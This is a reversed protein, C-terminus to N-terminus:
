ANGETTPSLKLKEIEELDAATPEHFEGTVWQERPISPDGIAIEVTGALEQGHVQWYAMRIVGALLELGLEKKVKDPAGDMTMSAASSLITGIGGVTLKIIPPASNFMDESTSKRTAM